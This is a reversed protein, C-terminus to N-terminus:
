FPLNVGLIGDPPVSNFWTQQDLITSYRMYYYSGSAGLVFVPTGVSETTFFNLNEIDTTASPRVLEERELIASSARPRDQNLRASSTVSAQRLIEFNEIIPSPGPPAIEMAYLVSAGNRVLVTSTSSLDPGLLEVVPNGTQSSIVAGIGRYQPGEGSSDITRLSSSVSTYGLPSSVVRSFSKDISITFLNSQNDPSTGVLTALKRYTPYAYVSKKNPRLPDLIPIRDYEDPTCLVFSFGPQPLYIDNRSSPRAVYLRIGQNGYLELLQDILTNRTINSSVPEIRANQSQSLLLRAPTGAPLPPSGFRYPLNVSTSGSAVQMLYDYTARRNFEIYSNFAPSGSLAPTVEFMSADPWVNSVIARGVEEGFNAVVTRFSSPDNLLTILANGDLVSATTSSLSISVPITRGLELGGQVLPSSTVEQPLKFYLSGYDNTYGTEMRFPGFISPAEENPQARILSSDRWIMSKPSQPDTLDLEVYYSNGDFVQADTIDENINGSATVNANPQNVVLSTPPYLNRAYHCIFRARGKWSGQIVDVLEDDYPLTRGEGYGVTWAQREFNFTSIPRSSNLDTILNLQDLSQHLQAKALLFKEESSALNSPDHLRSVKIGYKRVKAQAESDQLAAYMANANFLFPFLGSGSLRTSVTPDSPSVLKTDVLTTDQYFDRPLDLTLDETGSLTSEGFTSRHSFRVIIDRRLRGTPDFPRISLVNPVYGAPTENLAFTTRTEYITRQINSRLIPILSLTLGTVMPRPSQLYTYKQTPPVLRLNLGREGGENIYGFYTVDEEDFTNKKHLRYYDPIDTPDGTQLAKGFDTVLQPLTNNFHIGIRIKNTKPNLKDFTIKNFAVYQGYTFRDEKTMLADAAFLDAEFNTDGKSTRNLLYVDESYYKFAPNKYNGRFTNWDWPDKLTITSVQQYPEDNQGLLTSILRTEDEFEEITVYCNEFFLSPGATLFNELSFRPAGSYYKSRSLRDTVSANDKTPLYTTVANGIYCGFVARVGNMGYVGGRIHDTIESLDIDQYASVYKPEGDTLDYKYETRTFYTGTDTTLDRYLDVGKIPGADLQYPRPHMMDINYGFLDVRHPTKLDTSAANTFKKATFQQNNSNWGQVGDKGYPNEVLNTYFLENDHADVVEITIAESVTTGIDNVAECTYVGNHRIQIREIQLQSGSVITRSQLSNINFSALAVDDKRWIYEINKNSPLVQLLGNEVNAVSPQRASFRLTITEDRAIRVVGDGNIFLERGLGDAVGIDKILPTSETVISGSIVPPRNVIVPLLDYFTENENFDTSASLPIISKSSTAFVGDNLDGILEGNSYRM